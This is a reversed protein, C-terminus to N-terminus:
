VVPTATMPTARRKAGARRRRAPFRREVATVAVDAQHFLPEEAPAELRTQM